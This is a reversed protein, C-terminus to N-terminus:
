LETELETDDSEASSEDNSNESFEAMDAEQLQCHLKELEEEAHRICGHIAHSDVTEFAMDLRARVDQFTTSTTYARGVRTKINAWYMEIPQLNSHHPPTFFVEHGHAEAMSVVAPKFNDDIYRGLREWIVPKLDFPDIPIGYELCALQLDAKPWSRRPVDLAFGKHYKANDM